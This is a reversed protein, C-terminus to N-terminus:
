EKYSLNEWDREARDAYEEVAYKQYDLELQEELEIQEILYQDMSLKQSKTM